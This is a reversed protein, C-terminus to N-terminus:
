LKNGRTMFDLPAIALLGMGASPEDVRSLRIPLFLIKETQGSEWQGDGVRTIIIVAM